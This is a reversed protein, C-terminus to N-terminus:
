LEKLHAVVLAAQVTRMHVSDNLGDFPLDLLFELGGGRVFLGSAITAAQGVPGIRDLAKELGLKGVLELFMTEENTRNYTDLSNILNFYKSDNLSLLIPGDLGKTYLFSNFRFRADNSILQQNSNMVLYVRYTISLDLEVDSYVNLAADVKLPIDYRYTSGAYIYLGFLSEGETTIYERDYELFALIDSSLEVDPLDRLNFLSRKDDPTINILASFMIVEYWTRKIPVHNDLYPLRVYGRNYVEFIKSYFWEDSRFMTFMDDIERTPAKDHTIPSLLLSDPLQQNAILMDYFVDMFTPKLFLVSYQMEFTYYPEDYTVKANLDFEFRGQVGNQYEKCVVGVVHDEGGQTSSRSLRDDSHSFLYDDFNGALGYNKNYKYAAAILLAANPPIHYRYLINHSKVDASSLMLLRVKEKISSIYSKSKSKIEITISLKTNIYVPRLVVDGDKFIKPYSNKSPSKFFSEEAATEESSLKIIDDYFETDKEEGKLNWTNRVIDDIEQTAIVRASPKITLTRQLEKLVSVRVPNSVTDEIGIIPTRFNIM